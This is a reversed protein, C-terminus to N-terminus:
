SFWSPLLLSILSPFHRFCSPVCGVSNGAQGLSEVTKGQNDRSNFFCGMLITLFCSDYSLGYAWFRRSSVLCPDRSETLVCITLDGCHHISSSTAHVMECFPDRQLSQGVLTCGRWDPDRMEGRERAFTLLVRIPTFLVSCHLWSILWM